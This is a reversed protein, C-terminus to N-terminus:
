RAKGESATIVIQSQRQDEAVVLSPGAVNVRTALEPVDGQGLIEAVIDLRTQAILLVAERTRRRAAHETGPRLTELLADISRDLLAAQRTVAALDGTTQRVDSPEDSVRAMYAREALQDRLALATQRQARLQGLLAQRDPVPPNVLAEAATLDQSGLQHRVTLSLRRNRRLREAMAQVESQQEASIDITGAPYTLELTRPRKKKASDGSLVQTLAVAPRLAAGAVADAIVAGAAGVAAQTM